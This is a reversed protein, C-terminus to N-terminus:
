RWTVVPQHREVLSVFEADTVLVVQDGLRARLGRALVDPALAHLPRKPALAAVGGYVGDELLLVADADGAVALCPGLASQRNVLHLTAM